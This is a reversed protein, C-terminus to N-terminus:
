PATCPQEGKAVAPGGYLQVMVVNFISDSRLAHLKFCYRQMCTLTGAYTGPYRAALYLRRDMVRAM